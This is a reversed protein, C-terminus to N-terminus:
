KRITSVVETLITTDLNKSLKETLEILKKRKEVGEEFVKKKIEEPLLNNSQLGSLLSM